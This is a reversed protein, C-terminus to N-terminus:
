SLVQIKVAPSELKKEGARATIKITWSGPCLTWPFTYPFGSSGIKRGNVWWEVATIGMDAPVGARFRISQYNQRLVPDLKFIDGEQPFLISLSLPPGFAPTRREVAQGAGARLGLDHRLPCYKKPETGSLYVEEMRGPCLDTPILGSSPCIEKRVLGPPETFESAPGQAELLLMIDHFLPGCGTVGSVGQMPRGDFNGVWVGVTHRPTYGVTWNDRYDKSTGTKAAAPFPLNLPSLYGFSPIRADRDSLIDTILFAVQPSFVRAELRPGEAERLFIRERRFLGGHALAAYARTLELLSVEGNGLTLGLGYYGAEKKLSDFGLVKLRQFLMDAGLSSLVSVAPVNYSCALAVRMRVQGHYANDYNRPRYAGSPTSFGAPSDEILSSASYGRELALAYTFPKLASGPQRLALAGNVQGQHDADFFDGSGVLCLVEDRDNDLVVVAANTLGKNALQKLHNVVLKEVKAQLSFDLTTRVGSLRRRAGPPIQSLVMEAFHPAKFKEEAPVIVLKEALARELEPQSIFRLRRMARLIDGQRRLAPGMKRYPSLMTPSRPLGALFASEALSLHEAPKDFYLRAAAEIGFTQHGYPIRNLYQILIEEKSLTHELRVALWAEVVKRLFTRRGGSINRVLQQTITSAGSVTRRSRLNQFIARVIALPDIGSHSFFARDESALTAKLLLPSVEDLNIWRCRGGEDSLVERLLLGHRDELRLSLVPAPNLRSHPFPIYLSGWAAALAALPVGVLLRKTRKRM